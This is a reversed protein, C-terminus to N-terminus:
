KIGLREVHDGARLWIALSQMQAKWHDLTLFHVDMNGAVGIRVAGEAELEGIDILKCRAVVLGVENGGAGPRRRHHQSIQVRVPLRVDDNGMHALIDDAYNQVIPIARELSRALKGNAGKLLSTRECEEAHRVKM